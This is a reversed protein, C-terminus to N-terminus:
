EAAANGIRVDSVSKDLGPFMERVAATTKGVFEGADYRDLIDEIATDASRHRENMEAQDAMLERPLNAREGRRYRYLGEAWLQERLTDGTQNVIQNFHEEVNCGHDLQIPASRRNGSPDSPL